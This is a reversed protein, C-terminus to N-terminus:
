QATPDEDNNNKKERTKWQQKNHKFVQKRKENHFVKSLSSFLCVCVYRMLRYVTDYLNIFSFYSGGEMATGTM